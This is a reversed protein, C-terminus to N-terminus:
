PTPRPSKRGKLARHPPQPRSGLAHSRWARPQFRLGRQPCSIDAWRASLNYGPVSGLSARPDLPSCRSKGAHWAEDGAWRASLSYGLASCLSARSYGTGAVNHGSHAGSVLGAGGRGAECVVHRTRVEAWLASLNYGLASCLSARPHRAYFLGHGSHAGSVSRARRGGPVGDVSSTGGEAWLASLNYGLASCLSARPYRAYFLGHGSPARSARGTRIVIPDGVAHGRGGGAWRASLGYGPASRHSARPELASRPSAGPYRVCCGGHGSPARSARGAPRHFEIGCMVNM